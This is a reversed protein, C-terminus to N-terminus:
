CGQSSPVTGRSDGRRRSDRLISRLIHLAAALHRPTAGLRHKGLASALLRAVRLAMDTSLSFHVEAALWVLLGCGETAEPDEPLAGPEGRCRSLVLPLLSWVGAALDARVSEQSAAEALIRAAAEAV